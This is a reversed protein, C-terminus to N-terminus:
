RSRTLIELFLSPALGAKADFKSDCLWWRSDRYVSAVQDTGSVSEKGGDTRTSDWRVDSVSCADGAKPGSPCFGGFNVTVRPPGVSYSTITFNKRNDAVQQREEATGYCGVLFDKMVEDVPVSSKSFNELFLTAMGGVEKISDHVKVTFTREVRHEFTIPLGSGDTTQFRDVVVLKLNAVFPTSGSAPARWKVTPGSSSFTGDTGTWEYVLRDTTTEADTVVATVDIEENLDAFGTPENPRTGRATVSQIVPPQNNIQQPAVYTFAGPLSGSRGNLTVTVEVNGASRQATTATLSTPSAVVVNTAAAGGIAVAVGAAFNTGTVTISTGGLTTGSNPTVGTVTPTTPTPQVPSGSGGGCSATLAAVAAALALRLTTRTTRQPM